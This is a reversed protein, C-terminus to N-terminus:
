ADGGAGDARSIGAWPRGGRAALWAGGAVAAALAGVTVATGSAATTAADYLARTAPGTLHTASDTVAAVVQDRGIVLGAALLGMGLAVGGAAGALALRRRRAPAVGAALAVVAVVPLWTGAAAVRAVVRTIAGLVPIETLVISHDVAPILWAIVLGSDILRARVEAIVPGLELRVVGGQDVSVPGGTGLVAGAGAHSARLSREWLAAFADSEVVQRVTSDIRARVAEGDVAGLADTVGGPLPLGALGDVAGDVLGPLDVADHFATTVADIVVAQVDPDRALPAFTAVFTDTHVLLQRAHAAVVGLPAAVVGVVILAGSM